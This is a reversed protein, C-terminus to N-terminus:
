FSFGGCSELTSLTLPPRAGGGGSAEGLDPFNAELSLSAEWAATEAEGAGGSPGDAAGGGNAAALAEAARVM